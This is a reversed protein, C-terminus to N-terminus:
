FSRNVFIIVSFKGFLPLSYVYQYILCVSGWTSVILFFSKWLVYYALDWFDLM